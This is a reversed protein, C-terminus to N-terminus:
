NDRGHSSNTILQNASIEAYNERSKFIDCALYLANRFSEESAINKGAIDYATGHAPSTRVINLGATYNVGSEMSLLKFPIMAQDHYMALIADFKTYNGSGFFGDAPYVGVCVIREKEAQQMAPIIIQQEETGIVGNDGAHPNLGLVAIRPLNIGFDQILSRHLQRLKKLLLETTLTEAVKSIPLHTTAVAIRLDGGVMLMLSDDKKGFNTELFETHGAFHFRDSRINEKNIPATVLVDIFGNKLEGVAKELAVLAADGAIKTSTGIDVKIEEDSINVINIRKYNADAASKIASMSFNEIGLMKRHFSAVKSSGYIVPTCIDLLQAEQLTKIIVEYGIGNIDGHTIGVKIKQNEM